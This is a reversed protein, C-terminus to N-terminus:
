DNLSETKRKILYVVAVVYALYFTYNLGYAAVAGQLGLVPVFFMGLIPYTVNFVVEGVIFIIASGRVLVIYAFIWSLIKVMDGAIQWLFLDRMSSFAPTFLLWILFDRTLYILGGLLLSVPIALKLVGTVLHSLEINNKAQALKPLFYVSLSSTIFVLYVESIRTVGQWIGAQDLSLNSVLYERMVMQALPAAVASVLGMLAFRGLESYLPKQKSVVSWYGIWELKSFRKILVSFLVIAPPALISIYAGIEGFPLALAITLLIMLLSSAISAIVLERVRRFGNLVALWLGYLVSLFVMLPLVLVFGSLSADKLVSASINEHWIAVAVAICAFLVFSAILAAHVVALAKGRDQSHEAVLKTVGTYFMGGSLVAIVTVLNQFQGLQAVGEPGAALAVVKVLIFGALIKFATQIASLASTGLLNM